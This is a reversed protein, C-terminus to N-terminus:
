EEIILKEKEVPASLWLEACEEVTATLLRKNHNLEKYADITFYVQIINASLLGIIIAIAALYTKIGVIM